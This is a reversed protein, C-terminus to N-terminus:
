RCAADFKERHDLAIRNFACQFDPVRRPDDNEPTFLISIPCVSCLTLHRCEACRHTSSYKDQKRDFIEARRTLTPLESHRMSLNPDDVRGLRLAELRDGRFGDSPEMLSTVLAACGYVEGDRDVAPTSGRMVGCMTRGRSLFRPVPFSRRFLRLPVEGTARRHSESVRRIRTFQADLQETAGRTWMEDPTIAPSIALQRIGRGILFGVTDALHCIRDPSLTINVGLHERFLPPYEQRLRDVWGDLIAFTGRGRLQQLERIGDFSLQVDFGHAQLFSCIEESLLTGNTVLTYQVRKQGSLRKQAYAVASRILPFVLLPEGGSFVLEINRHRSGSVLGIAAHLTKLGMTRRSRRPQWCYACHLNCRSTLVLHLSRISEPFAM